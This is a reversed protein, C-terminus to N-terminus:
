GFKILTASRFWKALKQTSKRSEMAFTFSFYSNKVLIIKESVIDVHSVKLSLLLHWLDILPSSNAVLLLLHTKQSISSLVFKTKSNNRTCKIILRREKVINDYKVDKKRGIEFM